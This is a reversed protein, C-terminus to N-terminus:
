AVFFGFFLLSISHSTKGYVQLPESLYISGVNRSTIRLKWGFAYAASLIIKVQNLLLSAAPPTTSTDRMACPQLEPLDVIELAVLLRLLM